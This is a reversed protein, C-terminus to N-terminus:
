ETRTSGILLPVDASVSSASPYFPHQPIIKGDVSPSFGVTDLDADGLDHDVAAAAILIQDVPLQQINRV